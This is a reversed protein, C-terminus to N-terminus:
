EGKKQYKEVVAKAQEANWGGTGRSEYETYGRYYGLNYTNENREESYGYGTACDVRGQWIGRQYESTNKMESVIWDRKLIGWPKREKKGRAKFEDDSPMSKVKKDSDVWAASQKETPQYLTREM